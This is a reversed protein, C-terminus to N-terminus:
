ITIKVQLKGGMLLEGEITVQEVKLFHGSSAIEKQNDEILKSLETDNTSYALNAKQGVVLGQKKRADQLERLLERLLGEKQLEPTLKVDLGVTVGRVKSKLFNKGMPTDFKVVSVNVENRLLEVLAKSSKIGKSGKIVVSAMKQRLPQKAESRLNHVLSSLERVVRMKEM